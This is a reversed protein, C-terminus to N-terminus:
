KKSSIICCLHFIIFIYMYVYEIYKKPYTLIVKFIRWAEKIGANRLNKAYCFAYFIEENGVCFCYSYVSGMKYSNEMNYLSRVVEPFKSDFGPGGESSYWGVAPVVKTCGVFGNFFKNFNCENLGPELLAM